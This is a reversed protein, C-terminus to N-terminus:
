DINLVEHLYIVFMSTSDPISIDELSIDINSEIHFVWSPLNEYFENIYLAISKLFNCCLLYNNECNQFLKIIEECFEFTFKERTLIFSEPFYLNHNEINITLLRYLNIVNVCIEYNLKKYWLVNNYFGAKEMCQSVDTYAQLTTNWKNKTKLKLNHYKILMYLRNIIYDPIDERTYPNQKIHTSIYFELETADFIYVRGHCDKYSFKRDFPIDNVEDYTFPDEVNESVVRDNEKILKYIWNRFCRQIKKIKKMADRQYSLSITNFFVMFIGTIFKSKNACHIQYKFIDHLKKLSFLHNLVNVFMQKTKEKDCDNCEYMCEFVEYLESESTIVNDNIFVELFEFLYNETGYHRKCYLQDEHTENECRLGCKHYPRFICKNHM